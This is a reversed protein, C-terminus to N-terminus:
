PRERSALTFIGPLGVLILVAVSGMVLSFEQGTVIPESRYFLAMDVLGLMVGAGAAMVSGIELAREM